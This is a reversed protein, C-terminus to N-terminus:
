QQRSRIGSEALYDGIAKRQMNFIRDQVYSAQARELGRAGGSVAISYQTDFAEGYPGAHTRDGDGAPSLGISPRIATQRGKSATWIRQPFCVVMRRPNSRPMSKGGRRGSSDSGSPSRSQSYRASITCLYRLQTDQKFAAGFIRCALGLIAHTRIGDSRCCSCHLVIHGLVRGGRALHTLWWGLSPARRSVHGLNLHRLAVQACKRVHRDTLETFVAPRYPMSLGRIGRRSADKVSDVPSGGCAARLRSRIRRSCAFM